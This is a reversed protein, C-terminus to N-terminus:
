KVEGSDLKEVHRYDQGRWLARGDQIYVTHMEFRQGDASHEVVVCGQQWNPDEMYQPRTDCTCGAEVWTHSGNQDSTYFRGLRHVHGSIGSKGYREWEGKASMGSWKRVVTGHKTIIMPLIAKHAQGNYPVFEWGIEASRLLNPWTMAQQFARLRALERATGPLRWITKTLRYEHNGELWWKEAEPALASLQGLMVRSADIDDQLTNLRNPDKDFDSIQFCDLLDGLHIIRHPKVDKIIGHIVALTADSQFPIHTDTLIVTRTPQGAKVKAVMPFPVAFPAPDLELTHGLTPRHIAPRILTEPADQKRIRAYRQRCGDPPRGLTEGIVAWHEGHQEVLALLRIEDEGKWPRAGPM